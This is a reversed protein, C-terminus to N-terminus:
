RADSTKAPLSAGSGAPSKRAPLGKAAILRMAEDIPIRVTRAKEDVWGSSGLEAQERRRMEALDLAPAEQLRPEATPQHKLPPLPGLKAAAPTEGRSYWGLQLALVLHIVAATTLLAVVFLALPRLDLDIPEHGRRHDRGTLDPNPDM